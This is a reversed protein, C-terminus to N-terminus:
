IRSKIKREGERKRQIM